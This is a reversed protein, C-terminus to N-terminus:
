YFAFQDSREYESKKKKAFKAQPAVVQAKNCNKDIGKKKKEKEM